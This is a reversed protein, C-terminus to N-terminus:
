KVGAMFHKERERRTLSSLAWSGAAGILVVLVILAIQVVPDMERLMAIIGTLSLNGSAWWKQAKALWATMTQDVNERTVPSHGMLATPTAHAPTRLMTIIQARPIAKLRGGLRRNGNTTYVPIASNGYNGHLFMDSEVDRRGRLSTPKLWGHFGTRGAEDKDGANILRLLRSRRFNPGGVNYTFHVLADFEHQELPVKVADRVADEYQRLVNEFLDLIDDVTRDVNQPMADSLRSFAEDGIAWHTVGVGYTPVGVSDLYVAPVVGESAVLAAKGEISTQM